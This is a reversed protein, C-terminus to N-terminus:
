QDLFKIFEWKLEEYRLFKVIRKNNDKAGLNERSIALNCFRNEFTANKIRIQGWKQLGM